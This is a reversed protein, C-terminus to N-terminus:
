WPGSPVAGVWAREPCSVWKETGEAAVWLDCRMQGTWQERTKGAWLADEQLAAGHTDQGAEGRQGEAVAGRLAPSRAPALTAPGHSKNPHTFLAARPQGTFFVGKSVNASAPSVLADHGPWSFPEVAARARVCGGVSWGQPPAREWCDLVTLLPLRVTQDVTQFM